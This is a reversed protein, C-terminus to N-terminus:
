QTQHAGSNTRTATSASGRMAPMNTRWFTNKPMIRPASEDATHDHTSEAVRAHSVTSVPRLHCNAAHESVAPRTTSCMYRSAPTNGCLRTYPLTGESANASVVTAGSGPRPESSHYVAASCPRSPQIERCTAYLSGTAGKAARSTGYVRRSDDGPWKRRALRLM